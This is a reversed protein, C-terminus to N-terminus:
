SPQSHLFDEGGGRVVLDGPKLATVDVGPNEEAIREMMFADGLDRKTITSARVGSAGSVAHYRSSFAAGTDVVRIGYIEAQMETEHRMERHSWKMLQRNERRPRDTRMRYRSLDEFLIFQCPDHRRAWGGTEDRVLGRAAQVILDSGTKIRDKKIGDLHDLLRAAFVGSKERDLRRIDGEARGLLSWSLLLRRSSTLHDVAWISKGLYKRVDRSRQRKRWASIVPGFGSRWDRAAQEVEEAWVPEPAGVKARLRDLLPQEFVSGDEEAFEAIAALDEGRSEQEATSALRRLRRHRSLARRLQALEADAQMQWARGRRGVKEGPLRLTFSRSHVAVLEHDPLLYYFAGRAAQERAEFVSCTAFARLGLDVSLVRMGPAVLDGYKTKKGAASQFHYIARPEIQTDGTEPRAELDLAVKLFASGIDGREVIEEERNRLHAWRMMLDASGVVAPTMEGSSQRYEIRLDKKDQMLKPQQVQDTPAIDFHREVEALRGEPRTEILPLRVRLDGAPTAELAYNRLNSGGVPEWQASRPHLRADPLTMTATERSREVVREMANLRAIMAVPDQEPDSWIHRNARRALWRYLHPDGFRGGLRKQEEGVVTLLEDDAADPKRRWKDRLDEWARVMRLGIRFVPDAGLDGLEKLEQERAAEYGRLAEIKVFLAETLNATKFAEVRSVRREHEAAARIGWSEWSLLHGVALRMALRDWPSVAGRADIIRSAFYPKLMPMVGLERMRRILTPVGAAEERKKDLDEVFPQPWMRDGQRAMRVWKLPRGTAQLRAQGQEGELWAYAADFADGLGDRVGEVWNPPDAIKDFISMFGKSKPDTMPSVFAGVEQATGKEGVSSPVIAEYLARFLTLAEDNDALPELGNLRRAAAVLESARITAEDQGFESGDRLTLPRRRMALLAEEYYRTALNVERHTSWIACASGDDRDGRPVILKFKVSRVPM